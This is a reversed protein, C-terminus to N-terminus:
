DVRRMRVICGGRDGGLEDAGQGKGGAGANRM